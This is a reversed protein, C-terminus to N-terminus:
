SSLSWFTMSNIGSQGDQGFQFAHFLRSFDRRKWKRKDRGSHYDGFVVDITVDPYQAFGWGAHCDASLM